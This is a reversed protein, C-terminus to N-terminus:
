EYESLYTAIELGLIYNELRSLGNVDSYHISHTIGDKQDLHARMVSDLAKAIAHRAEEYGSSDEGGHSIAPRGDEKGIQFTSTVTTSSDLFNQLVERTKAISSRPM